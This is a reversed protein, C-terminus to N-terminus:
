SRSLLSPDGMLGQWDIILTDSYAGSKACLCIEEQRGEERV